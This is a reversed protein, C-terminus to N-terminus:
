KEEQLVPDINGYKRLAEILRDRFLAPNENPGQIVGVKDVSVQKNVDSKHEGSAVPDNNLYTSTKTQLWRQQWTQFITGSPSLTPFQM